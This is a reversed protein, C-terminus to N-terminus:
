TCKLFELFPFVHLRLPPFDRYEGGELYIGSHGNTTAKKKEQKNNGLNRTSLKYRKTHTCLKQSHNLLLESLKYDLWSKFSSLQSSRAYARHKVGPCVKSLIQWCLHWDSCSYLTATETSQLKAMYPSSISALTSFSYLLLAKYLNSHM